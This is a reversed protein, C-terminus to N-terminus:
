QSPNLCQLSMFQDRVHLSNEMFAETQPLLEIFLILKYYFYSFNLFSTVHQAQTLNTKLLTVM